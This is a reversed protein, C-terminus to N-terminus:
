KSDGKIDEWMRYKSLEKIYDEYMKKLKPYKKEMIVDREPIMLVKEITRLREELDQGNHVIKGNVQLSSPDSNVVINPSIQYSNTNTTWTTGNSGSSTLLQGSSGSAGGVYYNSNSYTITPGAGSSINAM